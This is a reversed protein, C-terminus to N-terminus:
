MMLRTLLSVKDKSNNYLKGSAKRTRDQHFMAITKGTAKCDIDVRKQQGDVNEMM